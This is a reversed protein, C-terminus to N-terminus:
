VFGLWVPCVPLEAGVSGASTGVFPVSALPSDTVVFALAEGDADQDDLPQPQRRVRDRQGNLGSPRGSPRGPAICVKALLRFRMSNDSSLCRRVVTLENPIESLVQGLPIQAVVRLSSAWPVSLQCASRSRAAATPGILSLSAAASARAPAIV